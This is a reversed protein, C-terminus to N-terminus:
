KWEVVTNWPVEMYLNYYTNYYSNEYPMAWHYSQQPMKYQILNHDNNTNSAYEKALTVNKDYYSANLGYGRYAMLLMSGCLLGSLLIMAYPRALSPKKRIYDLIFVVAALIHMLIFTRNFTLLAFATLALLFYEAKMEQDFLALTGIAIFFYAFLFNRPGITPSVVMMLLSGYALVFSLIPIRWARITRFLYAHIAVYFIGILSTFMILYIWTTLLLSNSELFGLYVKPTKSVYSVGYMVASLLTVTIVVAKSKKSKVKKVLYVLLAVYVFITPMLFTRSYYLAVSIREVNQLLMEVKNEYVNNGLSLRMGQAPSLMITMYGIILIVLLLMARLPIRKKEVWGHDILLLVMIGITMMGAQEVSAAAFLGLLFDPWRLQGSGGALVSGLMQKMFFIVLFLPYFYNFFGMFWFTSQETMSQDMACVYLLLALLIFIEQKKDKDKNSLLIDKIGRVAFTIMGSGLVWWVILDLRILLTAVMHVIVRGGAKNYHEITKKIYYPIDASMFQYYAWDDGYLRTKTYVLFLGIFLCLLMFKALYREIVFEIRKM